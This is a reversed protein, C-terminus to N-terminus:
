KLILDKKVCRIEEETTDWQNPLFHWIKQLKKKYHHSGHDLNQSLRSYNGKEIDPWSEMFLSEIERKLKGYSTRLSNEAETFSVKRQFIIDGTDIGPDIFHITVGRPTEDYISWFNPDAGRNWPLYSIHLNLIDYENIVDKRIIYRYGYSIIFSPNIEKIQELTLKEQRVNVTHGCAELFDVLQTHPGLYLIKKM